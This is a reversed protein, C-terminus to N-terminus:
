SNDRSTYVWWKNGVFNWAVLFITLLIKVFIDYFGFQVLTSFLVTYIIFGSVSVVLFKSVMVHHDTRTTRFTWFANWLYSNVTACAMALMAAVVLWDHFWDTLRTLALYVGFDVVTNLGGVLCFKVFQRLNTSM